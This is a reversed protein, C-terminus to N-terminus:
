TLSNGEVIVDSPCIYIYAVFEIARLATLAEADKADSGM